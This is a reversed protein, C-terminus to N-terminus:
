WRSHMMFDLRIVMRRVRTKRKKMPMVGNSASYTVIPPWPSKLRSRGKQPTQLLLMRYWTSTNGLSIGSCVTVRPLRTVPKAADSQPSDYLTIRVTVIAQQLKGAGPQISPLPQGAAQAAQLSLFLSGVLKLGLHRQWSTIRRPVTECNKEM